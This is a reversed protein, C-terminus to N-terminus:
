ILGARYFQNEFNKKVNQEFMDTQKKSQNQQEM